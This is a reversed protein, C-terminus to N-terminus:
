VRVLHVRVARQERPVEGGVHDDVDVFGVVGRSRAGREHHELGRRRDSKLGDHGPAVAVRERAVVALPIECLALHAHLLDTVYGIVKSRAANM